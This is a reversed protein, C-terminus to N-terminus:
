RRPLVFPNASPHGGTAGLFIESSPAITGAISLNFTITSGCGAFFTFGDLDSHDVLGFNLTNSGQLEVYDPVEDKTSSLDLILGTSVITGTFDVTSPGPQTTYLTFWGNSQGIYYGEPGNATVNPFGGSAGGWSTAPCSATVFYIISARSPRNSNDGNYTATITISGNQSGGAPLQGPSTTFMAEDGNLPSTGLVGSTPGGNAAGLTYYAFTVSGTPAPGTGNATVSAVITVATSSSQAAPPNISLITTRTGETVLKKNKPTAAASSFSSSVAAANRVASTRSGKAQHVSTPVRQIVSPAATRASESPNVAAGPLAAAAVVVGVFLGPVAVAVLLKSLLRGVLDDKRM